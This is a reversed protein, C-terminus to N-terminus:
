SRDRAFCRQESAPRPHAALGARARARCGDACASPQSSGVAATQRMQGTPCCAIILALDRGCQTRLCSVLQERSVSGTALGVMLREQETVPAEINCANLKLYAEMSAHATRKNGDIFPHNSVLSVCPAAAKGAVSPYLERGSFM